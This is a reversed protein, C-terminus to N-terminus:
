ETGENIKVREARMAEAVAKRTKLPEDEVALLAANNATRDDSASDVRDNM